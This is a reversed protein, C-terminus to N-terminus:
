FEVRYSLIPLLPAQYWYKVAGTRADFYQGGINKRNTTNQIDFAFTTTIKEYNRKLSLRLDLRYYNPNQEAFTKDAVLVTEGAKISAPLDIPTYRYGGILLSKLNLGLVRNKRGKLIWEKGGTVALAFNTNFRSNYWQGNPARFESDYLSASVLYYLDKQLFREYTLELGYNRGLGTNELPETNYGDVVNLMSFTSTRDTSVPINFLHQYYVETKIHSYSNLTHDFGLVLHHAKSLGLNKNPTISENGVGAKKAFYVGVPQLQSHLGYGLTWANKKSIDYRIAARPEFSKSNNLFLHFYHMGANVTVKDSLKQSVQFFAQATNTTGKVNIFEVFRNDDELAAKKLNYGPQTLIV